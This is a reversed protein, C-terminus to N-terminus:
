AAAKRGRQPADEGTNRSSKEVFLAELPVDLFRAILDATEPKCTKDHGHRLRSIFQKSCGVTRALDSGNLGTRDQKQDLFLAFIAKDRLEMYAGAAWRRRRSALRTPAKTATM